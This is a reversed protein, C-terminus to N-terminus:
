KSGAAAVPKSTSTNIANNISNLLMQAMRVLKSEEPLIGPFRYVCNHAWWLDQLDGSSTREEVVDLTHEFLDIFPSNGKGAKKAFVMLLTQVTHHDPRDSEIWEFIVDKFTELEIEKFSSIFEGSWVDVKNGYCTLLALSRVPSGSGGRLGTMKREIAILSSRLVPLWKRVEPNMVSANM